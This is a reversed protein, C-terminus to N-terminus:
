ARFGGGLCVESGLHLRPMGRKGPRQSERVASAKGRTRWLCHPRQKYPLLLAPAVPVSCQAPAAGGPRLPCLM